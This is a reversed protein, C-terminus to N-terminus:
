GTAGHGRNGFLFMSGGAIAAVIGGIIYWMTEDTYKGTFGESVTDAVSDTANLGFVLLVIGVILLVLGLIKNSSM